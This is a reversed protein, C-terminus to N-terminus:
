SRVTGCQGPRSVASRARGMRPMMIYFSATTVDASRALLRV